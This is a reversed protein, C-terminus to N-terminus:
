VHAAGDKQIASSIHQGVIERTTHKASNHYLIHGNDIVMITSAIDFIEDLEYSILVVAAGNKADDMIHKHIDQIAGLDLGRTPQVYVIVSHKRNIERGLVLKQQNGGSLSRAISRGGNAGRVDFKTCLLQAYENIAHRNLFGFKSFPQRDIEPAVANFSVTEDLLLGYKHRDEPVHSIGHDYIKRIPLNNVIVNKGNTQLEIIGKTPKILGGIAMALETQGNGEVGAIGLIEGKHVNFSIDKLAEIKNSSIKNAHLNKVSLIVDNKNIEVDAMINKIPNLHRGVMAEAMANVSTNHVDFDDVKKGLRIVTAHDAVEKVENLKHTIIIITKGLKKFELLMKLFGQIEADSLVATPEDFILINSDRYLLKLIEVRQQEGVSAKNVRKNLDVPLSYKKSLEMILAKSTKRDLTGHRTIEAGLIINELLTFVEVLKFHQHVMGLGTSSADQASKFKVEHGNVNISGKDPKYIGFLISMLTSKGAGNEGIIAHITNTKVKIDLNENAIISGNAFTKTIGQMEVAYPMKGHMNKIADFSKKNISKNIKM